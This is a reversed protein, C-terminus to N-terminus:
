FLFSVNWIFFIFPQFFFADCWCLAIHQTSVPTAKLLTFSADSDIPIGDVDIDPIDRPQHTSQRIGRNDIYEGGGHPPEQMNRVQNDEKDKPLFSVTPFLLKNEYVKSGDNKEYVNTVLKGSVVAVSGNKFYKNLFQSAQEWVEGKIYLNEWEGKSNKESCEVQFKTVEKGSPTFKTELKSLNGIITIIPLGM